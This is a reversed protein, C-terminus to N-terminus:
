QNLWYLGDALFISNFAAHATGLFTDVLRNGNADILSTTIRLFDHGERMFVTAHVNHSAAIEDVLRFDHRISNGESDVIAGGILALQGNEQSIKYQFHAIDGKLKNTAMLVATELSSSEVARISLIAMVLITALICISSTGAIKILLGMRVKKVM